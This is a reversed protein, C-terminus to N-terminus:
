HSSELEILRGGLSNEIFDKQFGIWEKKDWGTGEGNSSFLLMPINIDTNGSVTLANNKVEKVENIMTKTSTRRYFVAKYIEKEKKTLTGYKIADSESLGKIFRTIGVDAMFKGLRMVPMNIKYNKYANPVSMDLGIIGSVENPYKQGWYIAELGSVSHPCLIFPGETNCEKLATRTDSLISEIDRPVDAIDSFGYGLKEVVVIKYEDSLLSYLSKFDLVPSSTGGGSMFVITKDGKGEFYVNMMNDNIKIKTGIPTFLKDEKKINVKHNVYSGLIFILVFSVLIILIKGIIKWLKKM